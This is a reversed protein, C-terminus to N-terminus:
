IPAGATESSVTELLFGNEDYAELSYKGECDTLIAGIEKLRTEVSRVGGHILIQEEGEIVLEAWDCWVEYDSFSTRRVCWGSRRFLVAVETKSLRTSLTGYLNDSGPLEGVFCGRYGPSIGSNDRTPKLCAASKGFLVM